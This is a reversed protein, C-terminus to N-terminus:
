RTVRNRGNLLVVGLYWKAGQTCNKKLWDEFNVCMRVSVKGSVELELNERDM